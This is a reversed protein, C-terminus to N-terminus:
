PPEARFSRAVARMTEAAFMLVAAAIAVGAVVFMYGIAPRAELPEPAPAWPEEHLPRRPEVHVSRQVNQM